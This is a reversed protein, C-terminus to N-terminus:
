IEVPKGERFRAYIKGDGARFIEQKEPFVKRKEDIIKKEMESRLKGSQSKDKEGLYRAEIEDEIQRRLFREAKECWERKSELAMEEHYQMLTKAREEREKKMTDKEQSLVRKDHELSKEKERIEKKKPQIFVGYGIILTIGLGIVGSLIYILYTAVVGLKLAEPGGGMGYGILFFLGSAIIIIKWM